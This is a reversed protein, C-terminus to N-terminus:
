SITNPNEKQLNDYAIRAVAMHGLSWWANITTVFCVILIAKMNILIWDVTLFQDIQYFLDASSGNTKGAIYNPDFLLNSM